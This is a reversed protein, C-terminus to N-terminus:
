GVSSVTQHRSKGGMPGRCSSLFLNPNRNPNAKSKDGMPGRYPPYLVFSRFLPYPSLYPYMNAFSQYPLGDSLCAANKPPTLLYVPTISTCSLLTPEGALNRFLPEKIANLVATPNEFKPIITHLPLLDLLYMTRISGTAICVFDEFARYSQLSSHEM